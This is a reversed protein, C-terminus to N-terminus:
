EDQFHHNGKMKIKAKRSKLQNGKFVQGDVASNRSMRIGYGVLNNQLIHNEPGNKGHSRDFVITHCDNKYILNHSPYNGHFVIDGARNRRHLNGTWYPDVSTNFQVANQRAGIQLLLAHRLHEFYCSDILNNCAAFQLVCGYGVGGGGYRFANKASLKRLTCHSSFDIQVHAYNCNESQVSQIWCNNAFEFCINSFRQTVEEAPSNNILKINEIGVQEKMALLQLTTTSDNQYSEPIFENAFFIGKDYSVELILGTSRKAWESTIEKEDNRSLYIWCANTDIKQKLVEPLEVTIFSNALVTCPIARGIKKGKVHILHNPTELQFNITTGASNGRLILKSDLQIPSTFTYHSSDLQIIVGEPHEDQIQQIIQNATLQNSQNQNFKDFSIIPYITDLEMQASGSSSWKELVNQATSVSPLCLLLFISGKIALHAFRIFPHSHSNM